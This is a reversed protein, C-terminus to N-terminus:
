ILPNKVLRGDQKKLNKIMRRITEFELAEEDSKKNKKSCVNYGGHNAYNVFQRIRRIDKSLDKETTTFVVSAEELEICERKPKPLPNRPRNSELVENFWSRWFTDPVTDLDWAVKYKEEGVREVRFNKNNVPKLNSTSSTEEDRNM